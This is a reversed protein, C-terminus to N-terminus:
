RRGTSTSSTTPRPPPSGRASVKVLMTGNDGRVSTNGEALVVFDRSPEGLARSFAVAVDGVDAGISGM